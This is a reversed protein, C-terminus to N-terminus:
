VAWGSNALREGTAKAAELTAQENDLNRRLLEAVQPEGRAEANTVLVEYVAIEHHETEIVSSMVVADKIETKTM